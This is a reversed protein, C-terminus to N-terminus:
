RSIGAVASVQGPRPIRFTRVEPTLSAARGRAWDTAISARLLPLREALRGVSTVQEPTLGLTNWDPLSRRADYGPLQDAMVRLDDLVATLNRGRAGSDVTGALGRASNICQEVREVVDVLEVMVNRELSRAIDGAQALTFRICYENLSSLAEMLVPAQPDSDALGEPHSEIIDAAKGALIGAIAVHDRLYVSESSKHNEVAAKAQAVFTGLSEATAALGGLSTNPM